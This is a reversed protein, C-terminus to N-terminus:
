FLHLQSGFSFGIMCDVFRSVQEGFLSPVSSVNGVHKMDAAYYLKHGDQQRLPKLRQLKNHLDPALELM